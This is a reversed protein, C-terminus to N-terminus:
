FRYPVFLVATLPESHEHRAAALAQHDLLKGGTSVYTESFHEWHGVGHGKRRTPERMAVLLASEKAGNSHHIIGSSGLTLPLLRHNPLYIWVTLFLVSIPNQIRGNM